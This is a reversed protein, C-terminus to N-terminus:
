RRERGEEIWGRDRAAPPGEGGTADRAIWAGLRGPGIAIVACLAIMALPAILAEGRAAPLVMVWIALGIWAAIRVSGRVMAIVMLAAPIGLVVTVEDSALGIMALMGAAAVTLFLVLRVGGRAEEFDPWQSPRTRASAM